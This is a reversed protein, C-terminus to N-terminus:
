SDAARVLQAVPGGATPVSAPEPRATASQSRRSRASSSASRSRARSARASRGDATSRRVDVARDAAAVRAVQPACARTSRTTRTSRRSSSPSARRRLRAPGARRRRRGPRVRPEPVARAHRVRPRGAEQRARRRLRDRAPRDAPPCARTSSRLRRRRRRDLTPRTSRIAKDGVGPPGAKRAAVDLESRPRRSSGATSGPSRRHRGAHRPRPVARRRRLGVQRRRPGPPRRRAAFQPKVALSEAAPSSRAARRGHRRSPRTSRSRRATIQKRATDFLAFGFRNDGSTWRRSASPALIPGEPLGAACSTSRRARRRRSTPRSRRRRAPRRRRPSTTAACAASAARRRSCCRSSTVSPRVRPLTALTAHNSAAGSQWRVPPSRMASRAAITVPAELPMPRAM